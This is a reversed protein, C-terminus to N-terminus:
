SPPYHERAHNPVQKQLNSGFDFSESLWGGEYFLTEKQHKPIELTLEPGM